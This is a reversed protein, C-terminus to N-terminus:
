LNRHTKAKKQKIIKILLYIGIIVLQLVTLVILYFWWLFASGEKGYFYMKSYLGLTYIFFIVINIKAFRKNYIFSILILLLCFISSSFLLLNDTM